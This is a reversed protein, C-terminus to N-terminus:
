CKPVRVCPKDWDRMFQQCHFCRVWAEYGAVGTGTHRLYVWDDRDAIQALDLASAVPKRGRGFRSAAGKARDILSSGIGAL